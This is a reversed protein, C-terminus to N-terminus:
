QKEIFELRINGIEGDDFEHGNPELPQQRLRFSNQGPKLLDLPVKYRIRDPTKASAKFRILQNLHGIKQDNVFVETVLNGARLQALFPSAPPADPSAAELESVDLSIFPQGSPISRLEFDSRIETGDPLQRHFDNRISNGLHFRRADVLHMQGVFQPEVRRVDSWKLKLEGVLAHQAVLYKADIRTITVTWKEPQCEPREVFSQMEVTAVVGSSTGFRQKITTSSQNWDLATVRNLPISRLQGLTELTVSSGTLGIIRGFLEDGAETTITDLDISPSFSREQDDTSRLKLVQLEDIWLVNKSGPDVPGFRISNISAAPADSMAILADDVILRVRGPDFLAIFSHWKESLKLRQSASEAGRNIGSVSISQDPGLRVVLPQRRELTDQWEIQWEGSASSSDHIETQFSFEIRAFDLPPDLTYRYGQSTSDIRLSSRGSAAYTDDLKRGQELNLQNTPETEFSDAHVDLEGPLSALQSIASLAVTITQGSLLRFTAAQTGWELCEAVFRDGNLLSIQRLPRHSHAVRPRSPLDIRSRRLSQFMLDLQFSADRVFPIKSLSTTGTEALPVVLKREEAGLGQHTALVIFIAIVVDNLRIPKALYSDGTV